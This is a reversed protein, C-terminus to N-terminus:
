HKLTKITTTRGDLIVKYYYVGTPVSSLNARIFSKGNKYDQNCIASIAKGNIDFLEISAQTEKMLNLEITQFVHCPNPYLKIECNDVNLSVINNPYKDNDHTLISFEVDYNIPPTGSPSKPWYGLFASTIPDYVKYYYGETTTQTPSCNLITLKEHPLVVNQTGAYLPFLNSGSNRAWFDVIVENSNQFTYDFQNVIKYVDAIYDGENFWIGDENQYPEEIKITQGNAYTSHSILSSTCNANPNKGFHYLYNGPKEVSYLAKGANLRGYGSKIDYFQTNNDTASLEIIHESDEPALNKYDVNTLNNLYSMLLGVVGAVHPAAASTGQMTWYDFTGQTSKVLPNVGPAGVDMNCGWATIAPGNTGDSFNGDNGTGGVNIIWDDDFCAPWAPITESQLTGVNGRAAIQTVKNKYAGRVAQRLTKSAETLSLGASVIQSEWIGWSYNEINLGYNYTNVGISGISSEYIAKAAISLQAYTNLNDDIKLAYLSAGLYPFNGIGNYSGGAIGAVGRNNGRIAGIIGLCLTGHNGLGPTNPLDNLIDANTIFNWGKVKSTSPNLQDYGFDEHQWCGDNDVVGIKIKPAGTTLDWAPEINIDANNYVSGTVKHLSHQYDKYLADNATAFQRLLLNPESYVIISTLSDFRDMITKINMGNPFELLLTTWFDPVGVINGQRDITEIFNTKLGTFVRTVIIPCTSGSEFLSMSDCLDSISAQLISTATPTLFHSLEAFEIISNGLLNDIASAVLATKKFKVILENKNCAPRGSFDDYLVETSKTHQTYKEVTYMSALGGIDQIYTIYVTEDDDVRIGTAVEHIPGHVRREWIVRGDQSALKVVAIDKTNNMGKMEIALYIDNSANVEIAKVAADGTENDATRAYKWQEVGSANYKAVFAEKVYNSKTSYGGVVINNNADVAIANAQDEKGYGDYNINWVISFTTSLKITKMDYNIGDVSGKGTLYLNGSQDKVYATAQDYGSGAISNRQENIQTGSLNYEVVTYDWNNSSSASAGSIVVSNGNLIEIGVPYENLSNYDYRSAWLIAGSNDYSLTVYDFLSTSGESAASIYLNGNHEKITTPLDNKGYPSDYSTSWVLNGGADYKLLLIDYNTIGLNDTTGVVYIYGNADEAIHIGYDNQASSSNYNSSWLISGGDDYKTLLINAGEGVVQTNGVTLLRSDSLLLSHSWQLMM